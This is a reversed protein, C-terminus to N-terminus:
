TGNNGGEYGNVGNISSDGTADPHKSTPAPQAEPKVEPEDGFDPIARANLPAAEEFETEFTNKNRTKTDREKAKANDRKAKEARAGRVMFQLLVFIFGAAAMGGARLWVVFDADYLLARSTEKRTGASKRVATDARDYEIRNARAGTADTLKSREAAIRADLNTVESNLREWKGGRGTLAEDARQQDKLAREPELLALQDNAAKIAADSEAVTPPVALAYKALIREDSSAATEVVAAKADRERGWGTYVDVKMAVTTAACVFWLLVAMSPLARMREGALGAAFPILFDTALQMVAATAVAVGCFVIIIIVQLAPHFGSALPLLSQSSVIAAYVCVLILNATVAVGALINAMSQLIEWSRPDLKLLNGLSPIPSREFKLKLPPATWFKWRWFSWWTATTM